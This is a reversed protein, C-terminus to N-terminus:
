VVSKRDRQMPFTKSRRELDDFCIVLSSARSKIIETNYNNALKIINEPVQQTLEKAIPTSLIVNLLGKGIKIVKNKLLPYIELIIRKEIDNISTVGFLSIRIPTYKINEDEKISIEEIKKSLTNEFFYTKGVGWEGTILLANNNEKTLYDKVIDIIKQM